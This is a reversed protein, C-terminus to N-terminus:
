RRTFFKDLARKKKQTAPLNPAASPRSATSGSPQPAQSLSVAFHWDLHEDKLKEVLYPKEFWASEPPATVVHACEPCAWRPDDERDADGSGASADDVEAKTAPDAAPDGIQTSDNKGESKDDSTPVPPPTSRQQQQRSQTEFLHDLRNLKKKKRPSAQEDSADPAASKSPV